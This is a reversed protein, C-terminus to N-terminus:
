SRFCPWIVWLQDTYSLKDSFFKQQMIFKTTTTKQQQKQQQKKVQVNDASANNITV